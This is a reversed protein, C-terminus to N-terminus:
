KEKGFEQLVPLHRLRGPKGKEGKIAGGRPVRVAFATCKKKKLCGVWGHLFVLNERWGPVEKGVVLNPWVSVLEM